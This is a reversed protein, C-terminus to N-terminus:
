MLLVVLEALRAIGQLPETRRRLAAGGHTEMRARYDEGIGLEVVVNEGLAQSFQTKQVGAHFYFQNVLAGVLAIGELIFATDAREDLVERLQFRGQMGRYHGKARALVADSDVDRHL